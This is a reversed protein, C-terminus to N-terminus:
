KLSRELAPGSGAFTGTALIRLVDDAVDYSLALDAEVRIRGLGLGSGGDTRTAARRFLSQYHAEPDSADIVGDLAAMARALDDPFVRNKTQIVVRVSDASRRLLIDLASRGDVGYRAANELLEHTAMALRDSVDDDALVQAYFETVFRRVTAILAMSPSFRLEFLADPDMAVPGVGAREAHDTHISDALEVM